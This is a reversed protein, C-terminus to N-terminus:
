RLEREQRARKLQERLPELRPDGPLVSTARRLSAEALDLQGLELEVAALGLNVRFSGPSFRRAELLADRSEAFRGLRSLAKARVLEAGLSGALEESRVAQELSADAQASDLLTVALELRAQASYPDLRVARRLETERREPHEKALTSAREGLWRGAGVRTGVALLALGFWWIPLRRLRPVHGFADGGLAATVLLGLALIAPQRLPADAIACVMLAVLTMEGPIWAERKARLALWFWAVLCLWGVVGQELLTQLWDSHASQVAQFARAASRDSLSSLLSGQGELFAGPFSGAGFGGILRSPHLSLAELASRWLFRRGALAEQWGGSSSPSAGWAALPAVVACVWALHPATRRFFATRISLAGFVLAAFLAVWAVRAEVLYLAALQPTLSLAPILRGNASKLADRRSLSLLVTLALLMGLWNPNGMGGHVYNGRAGAAYQYLAWASCSVGLFVALKHLALRLEAVSWTASGLLALLLAAIGVSSEPLAGSSGWLLTLCSWALWAGAAALPRSLVLPAKRFAGWAAGVLALACIAFGKPAHATARPDWVLLALGLALWHWNRSSRRSSLVGVKAATTSSSGSSTM